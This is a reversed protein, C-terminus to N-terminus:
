NTNVFLLRSRMLNRQQSPESTQISALRSSFPQHRHGGLAAGFEASFSHFFPYPQCGIPGLRDEFEHAGIQEAATVQLAVPGRHLEEVGVLLAAAGDSM